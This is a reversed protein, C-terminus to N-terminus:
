ACSVLHSARARRVVDDFREAASRWTFARARLVAATSLRTARLPDETTWRVADAWAAPRRDAVLRGTTGDVVLAALGGVDSAVVPTGCAAAELAVLGFSEARSPVLCVDAARYYTSLLEHPQPAVFAVRGAAGAGTALDALSDAYDDGGQGSPGGVIVLREDGGRRLLEVLTAIALDAGKLSQLRGAFLLLPGDAEIGLARRAQLRDGPGFYAHDVGLPVMAVRDRPVGLVATLQDAEVECSALVADACAVVAAEAAARASLPEGSTAAKIREATHFTVLLPLDLEHKIAHGAVGSLWYNAHVADHREPAQAMRELVGATFADVHDVLAEKDLPLAPGATVRHVRVGPEVDVIGPAAADERRTFVDVEDGRRACAAALERVYVNMGGGDGTGPQALPSTHLSLVALRAM